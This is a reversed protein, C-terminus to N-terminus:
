IRFKDPDKQCDYLEIAPRKAFSLNYYKELAPHDKNQLLYEKTGRPEIDAYLCKPSFSNVPTGAPWRNEKLNLILIWRDKRIARSPYGALSPREQTHAHRERGFIVFNRSPAIWGEKEGTLIKLFSHGTM